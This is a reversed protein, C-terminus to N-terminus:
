EETMDLDRLEPTGRHEWPDRIGSDELLVRLLGARSRAGTRALVEAVHFKVTRETCGLLEAIRKNSDGWLLRWAAMTEAPSLNAIYRLRSVARQLEFQVSPPADGSGRGRGRVSGATPNLANRWDLTSRVTRGVADLLEPVSKPRRLYIHAGSRALDSPALQATSHAVLVSRCTPRREMLAQVLARSSGDAMGDSLVAAHIDEVQDLIGWALAPSSAALVEYGARELATHLVKGASGEGEEDVVLVRLVEARQQEPSSDPLQVDLSRM